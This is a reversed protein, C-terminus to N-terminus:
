SARWRGSTTSTSSSSRPPSAKRTWCATAPRQRLVAPRGREDDAPQHLRGEAAGPDRHRQRGAPVADQQHQAQRHHRQRRDAVPQHVAARLQAQVGLHLLRLRRHGPALSPRSPSRRRARPSPSSAAGSGSCRRGPDEAADDLGANGHDPQVRRRGQHPHHDGARHGALGPHRRHHLRPHRHPRRDGGPRGPRRGQEAGSQVANLGKSLMSAFDRAPPARHRRRRRRGARDLRRRRRHATAVSIAGIAPM